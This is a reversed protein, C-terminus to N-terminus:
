RATASAPTTAPTPRGPIRWRSSCSRRLSARARASRAVVPLSCRRPSSLLLKKLTMETDGSLRDRRAHGQRHLRRAARPPGAASRPDRGESTATAGSAHARHRRGAALTVLFDDIRVLPRRDERGVAADGDVTVASGSSGRRRGGRGGRGGGHRGVGLHEAAGEADPIRAAIGQLDGTPSHCTAASRRSTRQAPRPTASSSTRRRRRRQRRRARSAAAAALLSHLYIAVAKCTTPASRCRRCARTPRPRESHGPRDARRGPREARAAVPAPEARGAPRRARRRRPLRQLHGLVARGREIVAPDGPPRQQQLFVANGRGGQRGGAPPPAPARRPHPPPPTQQPPAQSGAHVVALTLGVLAVTTLGNWVKM